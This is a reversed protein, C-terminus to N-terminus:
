MTPKPGNDKEKPAERYLTMELRVIKGARVSEFLVQKVVLRSPPAANRPIGVLAAAVVLSAAIPVVWPARNRRAPVEAFIRDRVRVADVGCMGEASARHAALLLEALPESTVAELPIQGEAWAELTRNGHGNETM